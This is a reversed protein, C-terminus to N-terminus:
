VDPTLHRLPDAELADLWNLVHDLTAPDDVLFDCATADGLLFLGDSDLPARMLRTGLRFYAFGEFVVNLVGGEIVRVTAGGSAAAPGAQEDRVILRKNAARERRRTASLDSGMGVIVVVLVVIVVALVAVVLWPTTAYDTNAGM